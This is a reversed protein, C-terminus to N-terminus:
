RAGSCCGPSQIQLRLPAPFVLKEAARGQYEVRTGTATQQRVSEGRCRPSPTGAFDPDPYLNAPHSMPKPGAVRTGVVLAGAGFPGAVTPKKFILRNV